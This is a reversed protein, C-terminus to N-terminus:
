AGVIKQFIILAMAGACFMNIKYLLVMGPSPNREGFMGPLFNVLFIIMPVFLDM